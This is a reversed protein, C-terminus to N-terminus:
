AVELKIYKNRGFTVGYFVTLLSRPSCRFRVSSEADLDLQVKPSCCWDIKLQFEHPGPDVDFRVTERARVEGILDGDLLVHYARLRDVFGNKRTLEIEAM